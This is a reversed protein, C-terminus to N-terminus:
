DKMECTYRMRFSPAVSMSAEFLLHDTSVEHYEAYGTLEAETVVNCSEPILSSGKISSLCGTQKMNDVQSMFYIKDGSVALRSAVSDDEMPFDAERTVMVDGELRGSLRPDVMGGFVNGPVRWSEGVAVNREPMLYHDMVFNSRKIVDIERQTLATGDLPEIRVIGQGDKFTIRVKKGELLYKGSQQTFMKMRNLLVNPDFEPPLINYKRMANLAWDPVPLSRKNMYQVVGSVPSGFLSIMTDLLTGVDDPIDLGVGVDSVTVNEVVKDFSRVEVITLGDNKEIFATSEMGWTYNFTAVGRFGWDRHSAQGTLNGATRSVYTKGKRRVNQLVKPQNVAKYVPQIPDGAPIPVPGEIKPEKEPAPQPGGPTPVPQPPPSLEPQGAGGMLQMVTFVGAAIIIALLALAKLIKNLTDM